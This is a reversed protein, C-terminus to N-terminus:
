LVSRVMIPRSGTSLEETTTSPSTPDALYLTLSFSFLTLALSFHNGAAAEHNPEALNQLLLAGITAVSFPLSCENVKPSARFDLTLRGAHGV